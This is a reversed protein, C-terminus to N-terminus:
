HGEHGHDHQANDYKCDENEKEQEIDAKVIDSWMSSALLSPQSGSKLESIRLEIEKREPFLRLLRQLHSIANMRDGAAEFLLARYLLMRGLDRRADENRSDATKDWFALGADLSASAEAIYGQRLAIVADEMAVPYSFPNSWRAEALLARALQPQGAEHALWFSAVLYNNINHPDAMAAMWLWPVIERVDQGTMHVHENPLTMGTIKQFFSDSFALEVRRPKGRHFYTDAKDYMWAGLSQRGADMFVAAVSTSGGEILRSGVNAATLICSLSFVMTVLLFLAAGALFPTPNLKM